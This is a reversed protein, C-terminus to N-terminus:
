QLALSLVPSPGAARRPGARSAGCDRRDWTEHPKCAQHQSAGAVQPTTSGTM